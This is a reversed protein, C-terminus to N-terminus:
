AESAALSAASSQVWTYRELVYDVCSRGLNDVSEGVPTGGLAHNFLRAPRNDKPTSGVIALADYDTFITHLARRAFFLAKKGRLKRTLLYHMGYRRPALWPFLIVGRADGIMVNMPEDLFASMDVSRYPGAVFPRIEPKNALRNLLRVRDTM